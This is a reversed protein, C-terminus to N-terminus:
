NLSPKGGPRVPQNKKPIGIVVFMPPIKGMLKIADKLEKIVTDVIEDQKGANANTSIISALIGTLIGVAMKSGFRELILMIDVVAKMERKTDEASKVNSKM